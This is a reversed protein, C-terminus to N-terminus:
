GDALRRGSDYRASASAKEIVDAPTDPVPPLDEPVQWQTDPPSLVGADAIRSDLDATTRVVEDHFSPGSGETRSAAPVAGAEALSAAAL